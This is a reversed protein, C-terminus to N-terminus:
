LIIYFLIIRSCRFMPVFYFLSHEFFHNLPKSRFYNFARILAGVRAVPWRYILFQHMFNLVALM